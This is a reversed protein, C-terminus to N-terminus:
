NKKKVKVKVKKKTKKTKTTKTSKKKKLDEDGSSSKKPKKIMTNGTTSIDDIKMKLFTVKERARAFSEQITSRIDGHSLGKKVMLKILMNRILHDPKAVGSYIVNKHSQLEYNILEGLTHDENKLEIEFLNGDIAHKDFQRVVEKEIITLKTNLYSCARTAIDYARLFGCRLYVMLDKSPDDDKYRHWANTCACWITGEHSEGVSLVAKMSCSFSDNPRLYIITIPYEESYMSVKEGDVYVKFGPDSTNIEKIQDSNNHVNIQVEIDREAEHKLRSKDLLDVDKWYREHLYDIKPDIDMEKPNFVPLQSLRLTMMDNNYAVTTNKTINILERAYAYNAVNDACARRFSNILKVTSDKGSFELGLLEFNFGTYPKHEVEKVHIDIGSM